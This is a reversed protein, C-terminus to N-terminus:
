RIRAAITVTAPSRTRGALWETCTSWGTGCPAPGGADRPPPRLGKFRCRVRGLQRRDACRRSCRSSRTSLWGAPPQGSGPMARCPEVAATPRSGDFMTGTAEIVAATARHADRMWADMWAAPTSVLFHRRRALRGVAGVSPGPAAPSPGARGTEPVLGCGSPQSRAPHFRVLLARPAPRPHSFGFWAAPAAGHPPHAPWRRRTGEMLHGFPVGSPCAPECGRCQICTEMFGCSTATSRACRAESCPGGACRHSWAAVAGGRGHGSRRATRSACAAPWARRSSRRTSGWTSPM